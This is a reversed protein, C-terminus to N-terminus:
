PCVCVRSKKVATPASTTDTKTWRPSSCPHLFLKKKSLLSILDSSCQRQEEPPADSLCAPCLKAKVNSRVENDCLAAARCLALPYFVCLSPIVPLSVYCDCPLIHLNNSNHHIESCCHVWHTFIFYQFIYAYMHLISLTSYKIVWIWLVIFRVWSITTTKAGEMRWSRNSSCGFYWYEPLFYRARM